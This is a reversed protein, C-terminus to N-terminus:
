AIWECLVTLEAHLYKMLQLCSVIALLSMLKQSKVGIRGCAYAWFIDILIIFWFSNSGKTHKKERWRLGVNVKLELYKWSTCIKEILGKMWTYCFFERYSDFMILFKFCTFFVLWGTLNTMNIIAIQIQCSKTPKQIIQFLERPLIRDQLATFM